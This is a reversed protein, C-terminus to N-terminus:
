GTRRNPEKVHSEGLENQMSNLLNQFIVIRQQEETGGLAKFGLMDRLVKQALHNESYGKGGFIEFFSRTADFGEHVAMLKLDSLFIDETPFGNIRSLGPDSLLRWVYSDIRAASGFIRLVKEQIYQYDSIPKGFSKQSTIHQLASELLATLTASILTSIIVRELAFCYKLVTLGSVGEGIRNEQYSIPLGSIELSGTAGTLFGALNIQSKQIVAKGEPIAFVEIKPKGIGNRPPCWASVFLLGACSVNSIIPKNVHLTGETENTWEFRSRIGLIDTGANEEANCLAGIRRGQAMEPLYLKKQKPSGYANLLAISAGGHAAVSLLFPLDMSGKALGALASLYDRAELGEGGLERPVLIKFFGAEALKAWLDLDFHRAKERVIATSRIHEEGWRCFKEALPHESFWYRVM